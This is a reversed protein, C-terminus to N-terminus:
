FYGTMWGKNLGVGLIAPLLRVTEETARYDIATEAVMQRQQYLEPILIFSSYAGNSKITPVYSM